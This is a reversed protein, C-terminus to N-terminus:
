RPTANRAEALRRLAEATATDAPLLAEVFIESLTVDVPTGFVTTTTLFSLEGVGPVRLRFALAVGAHDPPATATPGPYGRLEELLALLGADATLAVQHAVRELIHARWEALNVVQPALGRPHLSLRLVNLPPALLAPDIGALLPAVADNAAVMCWSRDLALAPFPMHAALVRLVAERAAQMAPDDLARRPFVPAHGAAVLLANRDRLPVDLHRSLRLVMERSPVARGSEIWSIHRQSVEADLSLDLQSRRRRQRWDRLLEGVPSGPAPPTLSAM